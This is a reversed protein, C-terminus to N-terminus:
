RVLKSSIIFLRGDDTQSMKKLLPQGMIFFFFSQPKQLQEGMGAYRSGFSCFKMKLYQVHPEVHLLYLCSFPWLLRDSSGSIFSLSLTPSLPPTHTVAPQRLTLYFRSLSKSFNSCLPFPLSKKISFCQFAVVLSYFADGSVQLHFSAGCHWFARASRSGNTVPICRKYRCPRKRHREKKREREGEGWEM